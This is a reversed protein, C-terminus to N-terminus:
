RTSAAPPRGRREAGLPPAARWHPAPVTPRAAPRARPAWHPLLLPPAALRPRWHRLHPPPATTADPAGAPRSAAAHCGVPLPSPTGPAGRAGAGPIGTCGTGNGGPGPLLRRQRRPLPRRQRPQASARAPQGPCATAGLRAQHRAPARPVPRGPLRPCAPVPRVRRRSPVSPRAAPRVAAPAGARGATQCKSQAAKAARDAAGRRVGPPGARASGTRRPTRADHRARRRAPEPRRHGTCHWPRLQPQLPRPAKDNFALAPSAGSCGPRRRAGTDECQGSPGRPDNAPEPCGGPEPQGGRVAPGELGRRLRHKVQMKQKRM